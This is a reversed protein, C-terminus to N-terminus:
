IKGEKRLRQLEKQRRAIEAPHYDDIFAIEEMWNEAMDVTKKEIAIEVFKRLGNETSKVGYTNGDEVARMFQKYKQKVDVFYVKYEKAIAHIEEDTMSKFEPVEQPESKGWSKKWPSAKRAKSQKRKRILSSVPNNDLTQTTSGVDSSDEFVFNKGKTKKTKNFSNNTHRNKVLGHRSNKSVRTKNKSTYHRNKVLLSSKSVLLSNKSTDILKLLNYYSTKGKNETKSIFGLEVLKKIGNVVTPRSIKILNCITTISPYSGQTKNNAYYALASYILKDSGNLKDSTLVEKPVWYWNGDRLDRVKFEEM